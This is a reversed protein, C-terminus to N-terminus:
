AGEQTVWEFRVQRPTRAAPLLREPTPLSEVAVLLSSLGVPGGVLPREPHPRLRVTPRQPDTLWAIVTAEDAPTDTVVAWWSRYGAVQTRDVRPAIDGLGVSVNYGQIPVLAGAEVVRVAVYASGDAAMLYAGLDDSTISNSEVWASPQLVGDVLAWARTRYRRTVGYPALPEGIAVSSGPTTRTALAVWDDVGVPGAQVEVLQSPGPIGSVTVTPPTGTAAVISSPAAPPTWGVTQASSAHFVGTLASDTPQLWAKYSSGNAWPISAPVEVSTASGAVLGSDWIPSDATADASPCIRLRWGQQTGTGPTVVWSVTPSRDGFATTLTVVATPLVRAVMTRTVGAPSTGAADRTYPIWEYSTGATLVGSAISVEGSATMIVQSTDGAAITGDSKLSGWAGGAVRIRITCGTQPLGAASQHAFALVVAANRNVAAGSEPLLSLPALPAAPALVEYARFSADDNAGPLDLYGAAAAPRFYIAHKHQDEASTTEAGVRYTSGAGLSTHWAETIGRFIAGGGAARVNVQPQESYRGFGAAGSLVTLSTLRANVQVSGATIDAADLMKWWLSNAALKWGSPLPSSTSAHSAEVWAMQGSAASVTGGGPATMASLTLTAQGSTNWAQQVYGVLAAM